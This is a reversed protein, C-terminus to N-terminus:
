PSASRAVTCTTLKSVIDVIVLILLLEAASQQVVGTETGRLLSLLIEVVNSEAVQQRAGSSVLQDTRMM